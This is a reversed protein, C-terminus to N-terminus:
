TMEAHHCFIERQQMYCFDPFSSNGDRKKEDIGIHLVFLKANYIQGFSPQSDVTPGYVLANSLCVSRCTVPCVFQKRGSHSCSPQPGHGTRGARRLVILPQRGLRPVSSWSCKCGRNCGGLSFDDDWQSRLCVLQAPCVSSSSDRVQSIFLKEFFISDSLCNPPLGLRKQM